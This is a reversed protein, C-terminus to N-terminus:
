TRKINKAYYEESEKLMERATAFYRKVMFQRDKLSPLAKSKPHAYSSWEGAMAMAAFFDLKSIGETYNINNHQSNDSKNLVDYGLQGCADPIWKEVFKEPDSEEHTMFDIAFQILDEKKM